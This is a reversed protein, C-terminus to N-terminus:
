FLHVAMPAFFGIGWFVLGVIGLGGAIWTLAAIGTIIEASALVIAIQVAASSLEYHHYAAMAVKRKEEAQKAREALEKRGEQKDPESNYRDANKNWKDIQEQMVARKAGAATHAAEVQAAEAFTQVITMRITKAQYFSWLNSAEINYSLASTQASKAFTESFALFLALVSILLAVKKNSPDVHGHGSM